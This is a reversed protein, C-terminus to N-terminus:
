RLRPTPRQPDSLHPAHGVKMVMLWPLGNVTIALKVAVRITPVHMFFVLHSRPLGRTDDIDLGVVAAPGGKWQRPRTGSEGEVIGRM